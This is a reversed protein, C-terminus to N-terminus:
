IELQYPKDWKGVNIGYYYATDFYDTMIDSNDYWGASLLAKHAEKMFELCENTFHQSYCFPNVQIYNSEPHKYLYNGLFDLKGSKINLKITSSHEISLTAKVKYKKLIPKIALAIAKKDTQNIFAM